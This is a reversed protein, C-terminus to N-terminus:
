RVGAWKEMMQHTVDIGKRVSKMANEEFTKESYLHVYRCQNTQGKRFIRDQAQDLKLASLTPEFFVMLHSAFLDLGANGVSYQTIIIRADGNQFEEWTPGDSTGDFRVADPYMSCLREITYRYNCFVVVKGDAGDIIDSLVKTKDTGFDLVSGDDRYLFGSCIQYLKAFQVGSVKVDVGWEYWRGEIFDKYAKKADGSLKVPIETSIRSPMDFVDVLRVFIGHDNLIEECVSEHYEKPNGWLDISKVCRALFDKWSRFIGPDLFNVQGYMKSYDCRGGGGTVPTGSLAVRHDAKLALKLIQRTQVSSHSGLGHSEDVIIADWHHDYEERIIHSYSRSETGNRHKTVISVRRYTRQYSIVTLASRVAEIGEQTYGEFDYMKDISRLWNECLSAPCIVLVQSFEGKTVHRYVWDLVTATKGCGCGYFLGLSPLTDLLASGYEQHRALRFKESDTM